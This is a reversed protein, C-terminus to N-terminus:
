GSRAPTRRSGGWASWPPSPPARFACPRRRAAPARPASPWRAPPPRFVEAPSDTVDIPAPSPHFREALITEERPNVPIVRYGHAQMYKAAFFSPRHWEASLGVVAITRAERLIRKIDRFRPSDTLRVRIWDPKKLAQGAVLPVIKIPIRATKAKGKQKEGIESM